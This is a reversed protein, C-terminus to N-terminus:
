ENPGRWAEPLFGGKAIWVDLDTFASALERALEEITESPVTMCAETCKIIEEVLKKCNDLCTDPDM